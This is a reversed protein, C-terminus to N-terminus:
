SVLQQLVNDSVISGTSQLKFDGLSNFFTSVAKQIDIPKQLSMDILKSIRSIEFPDYKPTTYKVLDENEVEFDILSKMTEIVSYYDSNPILGITEMVQIDDSPVGIDTFM